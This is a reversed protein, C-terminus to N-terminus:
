RAGGEAMKRLLDGLDPDVVLPAGTARRASPVDKLGNGTVVVAVVEDKAVRGERAAKCFGAFAAAGAPEAFVGTSRALERMAGLIEDDTVTEGAGASERLARLAKAWNRPSGVAISDALTVAPGPRVRSAGDRFARVIPAAGEAQVGVLHPIKEIFGLEKLDRFGKYLGSLCCGDGLAIFVRDPVEWALQEAMELACTKKGEVLFPNIACNRNYWGFRDMAATALDFAAAYDGRVLVVTAGYILLQAVKGEPASEPVFIYAPLGAVTAFGALSSAANGTSACAIARQGLERARAVGVASARDKFSGTPNRGDDKVYLAKVGYQKALLDSRYLPSWGVALPPISPGEEVPLLPAYRWLGLRFDRALGERSLSRRVEDLDYLVDLTGDLGCSACTHTAADPPYSRGCLVCRLELRSNM